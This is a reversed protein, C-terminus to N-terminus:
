EDHYLKDHRFLTTQTFPYEEHPLSTFNMMKGTKPYAFELGHAWLALHFFGSKKVFNVNYKVDGWIPLDAHSLQVRIQHHRGTFLDIKLLNLHTNEELIEELMTYKLIARKSNATNEPVTKSFNLRQNKLLYNELVDENKPNGEVIALYTKKFKGAQMAISLAAAAQKTKAFVMVGGVNRDLRHILYINLKRHECVLSLMDPVGTKDSQSPIGSPKECVIIENDEFIVNLM